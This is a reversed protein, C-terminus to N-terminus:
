HIVGRTRLISQFGKGSRIGEEWIENGVVKWGCAAKLVSAEQSGASGARM